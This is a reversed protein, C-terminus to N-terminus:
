AIHRFLREQSHLVTRGRRKTVAHRAQLQSLLRSATFTTINAANALEENTVALEIGDVVRTGITDALRSLVYALRQTATESVLAAHATIYWDLYGVTETLANQYLRPYRELLAQIKTREWVVCSSEKVTEASVLYNSRLQLLAAAGLIDGPVLWRLLLRRGDRTIVFYRARGKTLLFFELARRGQEYITTHSAYRRVIAGAAVARVELADLGEVFPSAIMGAV